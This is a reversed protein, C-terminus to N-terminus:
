AAAREALAEARKLAGIWAEAMTRDFILWSQTVDGALPELRQEIQWRMARLHEALQATEAEDNELDGIM